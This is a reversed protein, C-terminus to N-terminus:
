VYVGKFMYECKKERLCMSEESECECEKKGSKREINRLFVSQM